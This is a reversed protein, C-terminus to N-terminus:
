ERVGLYNVMSKIKGNNAADYLDNFVQKIDETGTDRGGLGFIYNLIIPRNSSEFLCSRVETFLPGGYGGFTDSRDMIALAKLNGTAEIIEDVPFPRFVRPKLLGAKIKSKRLENVVSKATGATSSLVMIAFEADDMMYKDIIPQKRHSIKEFEESVKKITSLSNRIADAEQKKSEFYFDSTQYAGYTVPSALDLLSYVSHNEGVFEKVQTDELIEIVEVCHSTIFGDIMVMVPLRVNEDEAIRIAQILNDYGEQSNESYIQIWGSEKAGMSDSHDCGINIPSSLARNVDVMVIPLRLGSAVGLLEWMLALGASSTATMARAGAASAGICASMASHESEVTILETDIVGDHIFQSFDEIIITQPTIPFAGFVDPAIQRLATAMASAGTTIIRKSM